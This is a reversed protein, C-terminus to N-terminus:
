KHKNETKKNTNKDKAKMVLDSYEKKLTDVARDREENIQAKAESTISEELKKDEKKARQEMNSSFQAAQGEIMKITKDAESVYDFKAQKKKDSPKGGEEGVKKGTQQFYEGLHKKIPKYAAFYLLTIVLGFIIIQILTTLLVKGIDEAGDM